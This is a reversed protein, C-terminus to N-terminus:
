DKPVLRIERLCMGYRGYRPSADHGTWNASYCLWMTLGDESIFKSPLNVFYAQRGFERMYTVLRWPGTLDDAELIYTDFPSWVHEGTSVCMFYKELPANYTATVCGTRGPWSLLPQIDQFRGWKAKGSAEYGCFAEYSDRDNLTELTPKARVLYVNDGLIWTQPRAPDTNGHALLYAMGDPSHELEQGFDVFHPSGMKIRSYGGPVMDVLEGFLNDLPTRPTETWNKGYDTSTRFGVFPGQMTNEGNPRGDGNLIYTGFYWVGKAILSGCPYRTAFPWPRSTYIGLPTVKLALPDDGEIVAMGTTANANDSLSM